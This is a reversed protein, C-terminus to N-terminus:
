RAPKYAVYLQRIGLECAPFWQCFKAFYKDLRHLSGLEAPVFVSAEHSALTLGARGLLTKVRRTSPFEHPGEGHNGMFRDAVWLHIESLLSPCTLVLQGGPKLVRRIERLIGLQDPSHELMELSLVADFRDDPGPISVLDTEGFEEGPFREKSQELMVRSIELNVLRASPFRERIYPIAEGQRSWINLLRGEPPLALRPVSIRFRQTHTEDVAANAEEYRSRAVSSWFAEVEASGGIKRVSKKERSFAM